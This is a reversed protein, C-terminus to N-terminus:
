NCVGSAPIASLENKKHMINVIAKPHFDNLPMINRRQLTYLLLMM